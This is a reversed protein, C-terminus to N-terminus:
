PWDLEGPDDPGELAPSGPAAHRVTLPTTCM